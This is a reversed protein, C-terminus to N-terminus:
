HVPHQIQHMVPPTHMVVKAQQASPLLGVAARFPVDAHMMLAADVFTAILNLALVHRKHLVSCALLVNFLHKQHARSPVNSLHMMLHFGVSTLNSLFKSRPSRLQIPRPRLNERHPQDEQHQDQDEQHQQYRRMVRPTHMVVKAQQASPLLGVAARFPVDAHMM